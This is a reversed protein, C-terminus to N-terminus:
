FFLAVGLNQRSLLASANRSACLRQTYPAGGPLGSCPAAACKLEEDVDMADDDFSAKLEVRPAARAPVAELELSRSLPGPSFRGVKRKSPRIKKKELDFLERPVRPPAAFFRRERASKLFATDRLIFIRLSPRHKNQALRAVSVRFGGCFRGLLVRRAPPVRAGLLLFLFVAFTCARRM